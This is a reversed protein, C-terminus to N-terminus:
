SRWSLNEVGYLKGGRTISDSSGVDFSSKCSEGGVMFVAISQISSSGSLPGTSFQREGSYTHTQNCNTDIAFSQTKPSCTSTNESIPVRLTTPCLPCPVTKVEGCGGGWALIGCRSYSQCTITGEKIGKISAADTHGNSSKNPGKVSVFITVWHFFLFSFVFQFKFM